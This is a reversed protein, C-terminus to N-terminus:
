SKSALAKQAAAKALDVILKEREKRYNNIDVLLMEAGEKRSMLGVLHKFEKVLDPLHKKFWEGEDVIINLKKGAEDFEVSPSEFGMLELMKKVKEKIHEMRKRPTKRQFRRISLM